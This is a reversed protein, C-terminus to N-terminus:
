MTLNLSNKAIIWEISEARNTWFDACERSLDAIEALLQMAESTRRDCLRSLEFSHDAEGCWERARM